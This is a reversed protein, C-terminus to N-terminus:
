NKWWELYASKLSQLPSQESEVLKENVFTVDDYFVNNWVNVEKEKILTQM